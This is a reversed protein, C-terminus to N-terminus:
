NSTTAPEDPMVELLLDSKIWDVVKDLGKKTKIDALVFPKDGRSKKTDSEMRELDVGVYPALDTKNVITSRDSVSASGQSHAKQAAIHRLM